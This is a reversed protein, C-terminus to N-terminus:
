DPLTSKLQSEVQQLHSQTESSTIMM